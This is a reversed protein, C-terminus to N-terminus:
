LKVWDGTANGEADVRVRLRWVGNNQDMLLPGQANTQFRLDGSIEMKGNNASAATRAGIIVRQNVEDVFLPLSTGDVVKSILKLLFVKLANEVSRPISLQVSM